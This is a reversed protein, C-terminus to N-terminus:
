GRLLQAPRRQPSPDKQALYRPSSRNLWLPQPPAVRVEELGSLAGGGGGGGGVGRLLGPAGFGPLAWLGGWAWAAHLLAYGAAALAIALGGLVPGPTGSSSFGAGQALAPSTGSFYLATGMCGATALLGLLAAVLGFFLNGMAFTGHVHTPVGHAAYNKLRRAAISVIIAAPFLFLFSFVYAASFLPFPNPSPNKQNM